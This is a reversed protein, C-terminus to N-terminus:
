QLREKLLEPNEYINGIVKHFKMKGLESDAMRKIINLPIVGWWFCGEGFTIAYADGAGNDLIDGEYIEKDDKDELGTYQMLEVDERLLTGMDGACWVEDISLRKTWEINGVDLIIKRKKDWARFKIKRM